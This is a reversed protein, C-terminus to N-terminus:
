TQPSTKNEERQPERKKLAFIIWLAILAFVLIVAEMQVVSYGMSRMFLAVGDVITHALIAYVLWLINSRLIAQLVLLTWAIHMTIAFIRELGGLIPIYWPISWYTEIQQKLKLLTEEPLSLRELGGSKLVLMNVFTSLVLVGLLISEIGGHGAGFTVGEQWSRADRRWFKLVLYRAVEECFGASLGAILAMAPLPWLAVGRGGKLLGIAYNLPIHVVQSLIFTIAGAWILSMQLNFKKTLFVWLFIPIGMMIIMEIIFAIILM